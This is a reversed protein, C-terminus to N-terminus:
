DCWRICYESVLHEVADLILHENVEIGAVVLVLRFLVLPLTGEADELLASDEHQALVESIHESLAVTDRVPLVYACADVHGRGTETFSSESVMEQAQCTADYRICEIHGHAFADTSHGEDTGFGAAEFRMMEVGIVSVTENRPLHRLPRGDARLNNGDSCHCLVGVLEVLTDHGIDQVRLDRQAGESAATLAGHEDFFLVLKSLITVREGPKRRLFGSQRLPAPIETHRVDIGASERGRRLVDEFLGM